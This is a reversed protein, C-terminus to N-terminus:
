KVLPYSKSSWSGIGGKLNYVELFDAKKMLDLTQGSRNGSHCYLLYKKSKDLKNIQDKFDKAYFDINISKDIHSEKYEAPTRVDILIYNKDGSTDIIKKYFEEVSLNMFVGKSKSNEANIFYISLLLFVISLIFSKKIM